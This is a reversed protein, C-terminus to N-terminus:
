SLLRVKEKGGFSFTVFLFITATQGDIRKTQPIAVVDTIEARTGTPFRRKSSGRPDRMGSCQVKEPCFAVELILGCYANKNLGFSVGSLKAAATLLRLFNTCEHPFFYIFDAKHFWFCKGGFFDPSKDSHVL